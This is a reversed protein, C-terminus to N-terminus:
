GLAGFVVGIFELIGGLASELAMCFHIATFKSRSTRRKKKMPSLAVAQAGVESEYFLRQTTVRCVNFWSRVVVRLYPLRVV